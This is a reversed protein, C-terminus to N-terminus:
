LILWSWQVTPSHTIIFLLQFGVNKSVLELKKNTSELCRFVGIIDPLIEPLHWGCNLKQYFLKDIIIILDNSGSDDSHEVSVFCM